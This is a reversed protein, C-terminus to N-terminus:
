ILQKVRTTIYKNVLLLHFNLGLAVEMRFHKELALFVDPYFKIYLGPCMKLKIFEMVKNRSINHAFIGVSM